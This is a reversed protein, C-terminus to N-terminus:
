EKTLMLPNPHKSHDYRQEIEGATPLPDAREAFRVTLGEGADRGLTVDLTDYGYLRDRSPECADMLSSRKPMSVKIGRAVCIGLWFEVCARGKEAHHSHEYTFDMGFLSIKKPRLFAAFAVAYAATSNMYAYGTDRVVAELPYPVLGPYDPHPRSTYVPGPHRKLWPLLAAINGDPKARARIEQIRVDDMHFVRDGLLVDGLANITWVEDCFKGRGGMRKTFELYDAVSPGLALIAVHEPVKTLLARELGQALDVVKPAEHPKAIAIVTRGSVRTEVESETGDQGYWAFTKWGAEGLLARFEAPTYHRHHFAISEDWPFAEENPVSAFLQLAHERLRKLLPLPNIIHEITEFSVAADFRGPLKLSRADARVYRVAEHAYHKRAYALAGADRDVAVVSHGAEALIRAGYGIGCAVDVVRSGKPLQKAVWEYRAVHDRRIGALTPAVQREGEQM